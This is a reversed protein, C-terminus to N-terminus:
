SIEFNGPSGKDSELGHYEAWDRKGSYIAYGVMAFANWALFGYALSFRRKWLDATSMDIPRTNRRVLRRLWQITM